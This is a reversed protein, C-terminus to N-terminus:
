QCIEFLIGLGEGAVSAEGGSGLGFGIVPNDSFNFSVEELTTCSVGGETVAIDQADYIISPHTLDTTPTAQYPTASYTEKAAVISITYEFKGNETLTLSFGNAKCGNYKYYTSIATIGKELVFSPTTSGIKFTHTYPGTGTTVPVGLCMKLIHGISISDCFGKLSGAVNKNGYFPLTPQRTSGLLTTKQPKADCKMDCSTFPLKIGAIPSPDAKYVTEWDIVVQSKAGTGLAM